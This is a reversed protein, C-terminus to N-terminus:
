SETACSGLVMIEICPPTKATTFKLEQLTSYLVLRTYIGCVGLRYNILDEKSIDRGVLKTVHNNKEISQRELSCIRTGTIFFGMENLMNWAILVGTKTKAFGRALGTTGPTV